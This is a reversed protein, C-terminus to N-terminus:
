SRAVAELIDRTPETIEVIEELSFWGIRRVEVEDEVHAQEGEGDVVYILDVRHARADVVTTPDPLAAPDLHIGIEEGVERVLADVPSERRRLLGGPLAWGASHRQDVLLFRGDARRLVLVAGLTYSPTGLGVALRRLPIPLVKFARMATKKVLALRS